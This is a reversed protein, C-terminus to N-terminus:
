GRDVGVREGELLLEPEAVIEFLVRIHTEGALYLDQTIHGNVRLTFSVSRHLLPLLPQNRGAGKAM